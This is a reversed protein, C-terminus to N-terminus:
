VIIKLVLRLCISMVDRTTPTTTVAVPGFGIVKIIKKTNLMQIQQNINSKNNDTHIHTHTCNKAIQFESVM